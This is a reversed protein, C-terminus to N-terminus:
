KTDTTRPRKACGTSHNDSKEAYVLIPTQGPKCKLSVMANLRDQYSLRGRTSEDPKTVAAVPSILVLAAVLLGLLVRM